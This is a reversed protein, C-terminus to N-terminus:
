FSKAAQNPLLVKPEKAPVRCLPALWDLQTCKQERTDRIVQRVSPDDARLWTNCLKQLQNQTHRKTMLLSLASLSLTLPLSLWMKKTMVLSNHEICLSLAFSVKFNPIRSTTIMDLNEVNLWTVEVDLWTVEYCSLSFCCFVLSSFINDPIWSTM